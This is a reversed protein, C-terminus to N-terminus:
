HEDAPVPGQDTGPEPRLVGRRVGEGAALWVFFWCSWCALSVKSVVQQQLLLLGGPGSSSGCSPVATELCAWFGTHPPADACIELFITRYKWVLQRHLQFFSAVVIQSPLIGCSSKM